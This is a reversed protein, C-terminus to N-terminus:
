RQFILLVKRHLNKKRTFSNETLQFSDYLYALMGRDLDGNISLVSPVVNKRGDRGEVFFYFLFLMYKLLDRLILYRQSISDFCLSILLDLRFSLIKFISDNSLAWPLLQNPCSDDISVTVLLDFNPLFCTLYVTKFYGVM